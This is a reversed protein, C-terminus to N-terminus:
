EIREDMNALAEDAATKMQTGVEDTDDNLKYIYMKAFTDGYDIELEGDEIMQRPVEPEIMKALSGGPEWLPKYDPAYRWWDHFPAAEALFGGNKYLTIIEERTM